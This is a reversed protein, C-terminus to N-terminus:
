CIETTWQNLTESETKVPIIALKADRRSAVVSKLCKWLNLTTKRFNWLNLTVKRSADLFPIKRLLECFIQRWILDDM